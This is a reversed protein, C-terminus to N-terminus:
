FGYAKMQTQAAIALDDAVKQAFVEGSIQDIPNRM